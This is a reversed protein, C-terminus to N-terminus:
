GDRPSEASEPARSVRVYMAAWAGAYGLQLAVLLLTTPQGLGLLMAQIVVAASVVWSVANGATIAGWARADTIDRTLWNLAGFGVYSACALRALALDFADLRVGFATAFAEPAVLGASGFLLSTAGAIRALTGPTM